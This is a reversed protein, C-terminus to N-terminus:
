FGLRRLWLLVSTRHIGTVEVRGVKEHIKANSVVKSLEEKFENVDGTLHQILTRKM